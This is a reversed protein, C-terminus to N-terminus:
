FIASIKSSHHIVLLQNMRLNNWKLNGYQGLFGGMIIAKNQNLTSLPFFSLPILYRDPDKKRSM